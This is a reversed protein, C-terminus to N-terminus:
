RSASVVVAPAVWDRLEAPVGDVCDVAFRSKGVSTWLTAPSDPVAVRDDRKSEHADGLELPLQPAQELTATSGHTSSATETSDSQPM